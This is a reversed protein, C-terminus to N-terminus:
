LNKKNKLYENHNNDMREKNKQYYLKYYEKQYRPKLELNDSKRNKFNPVGKLKASRKMKHEESQRIGSKSISIKKKTDQSMKYGSPGEGGDSLNLLKGLGLDRRGLKKIYYKEIEFAESELLGNDIILVDYNYKKTYKKWIDSRGYKQNCRNGSGKGVYFIDSNEINIHFYIYFDNM